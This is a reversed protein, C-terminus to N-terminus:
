QQIASQELVPGLHRNEQWARGLGCSAEREHSVKGVEGSWNYECADAQKWAKDECTFISCMKSVVGIVRVATLVTFGQLCCVM